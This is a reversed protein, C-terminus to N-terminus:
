RRRLSSMPMAIFLLKANPPMLVDNIKARVWHPSWLHVGLLDGVSKGGARRAAAATVSSAVEGTASARSVSCFKRELRREGLRLGRALEGGADLQEEARLFVRLRGRLEARARVLLFVLKKLM